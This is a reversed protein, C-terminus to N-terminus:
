MGLNVNDTQVLTSLELETALIVFYSVWKVGVGQLRPFTVQQAHICKRLSIFEKKDLSSPFLFLLKKEQGM